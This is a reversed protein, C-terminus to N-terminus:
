STRKWMRIQLVEGDDEKVVMLADLQGAMAAIEDRPAASFKQHYSAELLRYAMPAKANTAIDYRDFFNRNCSFSANHVRPITM